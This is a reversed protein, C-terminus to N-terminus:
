PILSGRRALPSHVWSEEILIRQFPQRYKRLNRRDLFLTSM